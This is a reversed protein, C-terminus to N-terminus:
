RVPILDSDRKIRFIVKNYICKFFKNDDHKLDAPFKHWKKNVTPLEALVNECIAKPNPNEGLPPLKKWVAVM